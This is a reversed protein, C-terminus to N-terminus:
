KGNSGAESPAFTSFLAEGDGTLFDLNSSVTTVTFQVILLLLIQKWCLFRAM